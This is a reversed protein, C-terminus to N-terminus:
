WRQSMHEAFGLLKELVIREGRETTIIGHFYGHIKHLEAAAIGINQKSEQHYIPDFTLSLRGDDSTFTWPKERDNPDFKLEINRFKDLKGDIFLANATGKSDDGYGHGLNIAIRKGNVIGAAQGWFWSSERPWIGRGWDFIAFSNGVPLEFSEDGVQISGTAPMGCIKNEYFFHGAEAFPRAIAISEQAKPDQLTLKGSFAPSVATAAISLEIDRSDGEYTFRVFNDGKRFDTTGYPHDPFISTDKTRLDLFLSSKSSQKRYDIVEASGFAMSGLQAITVGLTFDPGMITYHEWEKVRGLLKEPIADRNYLMQARRAWGGAALSGDAYLLSVPATHEKQTQARAPFGALLLFLLLLLQPIQVRYYVADHVFM